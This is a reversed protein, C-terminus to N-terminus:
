VRAFGRSEDGFPQDLIQISGGPPRRPSKRRRLRPLPDGLKALVTGEFLSRFLNDGSTISGEERTIPGLEITQHTRCEGEELVQITPSFRALSLVLFGL